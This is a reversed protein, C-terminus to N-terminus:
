ALFPLAGTINHLLRKKGKVEDGADGPMINLAAAGTLGKRCRCM